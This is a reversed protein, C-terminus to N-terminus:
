NEKSKVAWIEFSSLSGGCVLDCDSVFMRLLGSKNLCDISWSRREVLDSYVKKYGSGGIGDIHIVDSCGSLRMLPKGDKIAVFDMMRYGSGHMKKTPMIVICDCIIHEDWKERDPVAEFQKRTMDYYLVIKENRPISNKVRKNPREKKKSM